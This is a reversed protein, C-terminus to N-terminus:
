SGPVRGLSVRVFLPLGHCLSRRSVRFLPEPDPIAHHVRVKAPDVAARMAFAMAQLRV